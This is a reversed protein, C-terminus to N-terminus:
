RVRRLQAVVGPGTLAVGPRGPFNVRLNGKLSTKGGDRGFTASGSFPAPPRLAASRLGVHAFAEVGAAISLSREIVVGGREETVGAEIQAAGGGKRRFATVRTRRPGGTLELYTGAPRKEAQTEEACMVSLALGDDGEARAAEVSTLGDAHFSIAGEYWGAVSSLHHACGLEAVSSGGSGPHFTASIRGFPGLEARIAGAEVIGPFRYTVAGSRTAARVIVQAPEGEIAPAGYVEVQYGHTGPLAFGLPPAATGAARAISASLAQGSSVAILFLLVGLIPGSIRPRALRRSRM